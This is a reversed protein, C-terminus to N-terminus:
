AGVEAVAPFAVVEGSALSVCGDEIHFMLSLNCGDCTTVRLIQTAFVYEPRDAEAPLTHFVVPEVKLNTVKCLSTNIFAM